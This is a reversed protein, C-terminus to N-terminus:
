CSLEGVRFREGGLAPPLGGDPLNVPLVPTLTTPELVPDIM